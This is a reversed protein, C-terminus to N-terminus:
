PSAAKASSNSRPSRNRGTLSWQLCRSSSSPAGGSRTTTWRIPTSTRCKALRTSTRIGIMPETAQSYPVLVLVQGPGPAPLTTELELEAEPLPQSGFQGTSTRASERASAAAASIQITM